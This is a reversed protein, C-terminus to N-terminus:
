NYVGNRDIFFMEYNKLVWNVKNKKMNFFHLYFYEKKTIMNFIKGNEWKYSFPNKRDYRGDAAIINKKIVNFNNNSSLHRTLVFEDLGKYEKEMIIKEVNPINFFYDNVKKTNKYFTGHGTMFHSRTSFFDCNKMNSENIYKKDDGYFVDLDGVGWYNYDVLHQEFLSGYFVKFECIKRTSIDNISFGINNIKRILESKTLGIIEVNYKSEYRLDDTFIKFNLSTKYCTHLYIPMWKPLAGLYVVVVCARM